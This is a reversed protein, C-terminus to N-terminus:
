LFSTSDKHIRNPQTSLHEIFHYQIVEVKGVTTAALTNFDLTGTRPLLHPQCLFQLNGPLCYCKGLLDIRLDVEDDFIRLPVLVVILCPVIRCLLWSDKIRDVGTRLGTVRSICLLM